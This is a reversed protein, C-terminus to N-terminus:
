LHQLWEALEREMVGAPARGIKKEFGIQTLGKMIDARAPCRTIELMLRTKKKDYCRIQRCLLVQDGMEDNTAKEIDKLYENVGQTTRQDMGEKETLGKIMGLFAQIHPPGMKTREDQALQSYAKTQETMRQFVIDDSPGILVDFCCSELDRQGQMNRLMGKVMLKLLKATKLNALSEKNNDPRPQPEDDDDQQQRGKKKAPHENGATAVRARPARGGGQKAPAGSQSSASQSPPVAAEEMMEADETTAAAAPLLKVM